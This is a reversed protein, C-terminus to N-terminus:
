IFVILILLFLIVAICVLVNWKADEALQDCMRERVEEPINEDFIEKPPPKPWFLGM